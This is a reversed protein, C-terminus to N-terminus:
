AVGDFSGGKGSAKSLQASQELLQNIADGAAQQADLTKAAVTFAVESRFASDQAALVSAIAGDISSM